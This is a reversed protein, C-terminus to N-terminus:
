EGVEKDPIKGHPDLRIKEQNKEIGLLGNGGRYTRSALGFV